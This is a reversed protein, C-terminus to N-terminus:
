RRGAASRPKPWERAPKRVQGQANQPTWIRASMNETQWVFYVPPEGKQRAPFLSKHFDSPLAALFIRGSCGEMGIRGVRINATFVLLQPRSCKQRLGVAGSADVGVLHFVMKGLDIGIAHLEM